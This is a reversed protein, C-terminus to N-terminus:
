SPRWSSSQSRHDKHHDRHYATIVMTRNTRIITDMIIQSFSPGSSPGRSSSHSQGGSQSASTQVEGPVERGGESGAGTVDTTVGRDPHRCEWCEGPSQCDYCGTNHTPVLISVFDNENEDIVSSTGLVINYSKNWSM